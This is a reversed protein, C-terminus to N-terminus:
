ENDGGKYTAAIAQALARINWSPDRAESEGFNDRVWCRIARAIEPAPDYKEWEDLAFKLADNYGQEHEPSELTAPKKLYRTSTKYEKELTKIYKKM